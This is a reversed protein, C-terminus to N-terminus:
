GRGRCIMCSCGLIQATHAHTHCSIRSMVCAFVPCVCFVLPLSASSLVFCLVWVIFVWGVGVRHGGVDWIDRGVMQPGLEVGQAVSHRHLPPLSLSGLWCSLFSRLSPPTFVSKQLCILVFLWFVVTIKIFLCFMGMFREKRCSM